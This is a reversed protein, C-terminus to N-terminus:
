NLEAREQIKAHERVLQLLNALNQPPDTLSFGKQNPSPDWYIKHSKAKVAIVAELWPLLERASTFRKIEAADCQLALKCETAIHESTFLPLNLLGAQAAPDSLLLPRYDDRLAILFIPFRLPNM